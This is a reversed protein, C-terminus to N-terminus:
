REVPLGAGAWSLMGGALSVPCDFGIAKLYEAAALSRRGSRCVLVTPKSPDLEGSRAELEGLPLLTAGALRGGDWEDQERVDVLQVGRGQWDELYAPITIELDDERDGLTGTGM